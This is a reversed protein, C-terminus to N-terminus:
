KSRGKIYCSPCWKKMDEPWMNSCIKYAVNYRLHQACGMQKMETILSSDFSPKKDKFVDSLLASMNVYMDAAIQEGINHKNVIFQPNYKELFDKAELMDKYGVHDNPVVNVAIKLAKLLSARSKADM